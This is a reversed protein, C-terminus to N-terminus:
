HAELKGPEHKKKLNTDIANCTERYASNNNSTRTANITTHGSTYLRGISFNLAGPQCDYYAAESDPRLSAFNYSRRQETRLVSHRASKAEELVMGSSDSPACINKSVSPAKSARRRMVNFALSRIIRGLRALKPGLRKGIIRRDRVVSSEKNKLWLITGTGEKPDHIRLSACRLKLLM